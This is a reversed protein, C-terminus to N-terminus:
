FHHPPDDGAPIGCTPNVAVLRGRGPSTTFDQALVTFGNMGVVQVSEPVIDSYVIGPGGITIAAIGEAPMSTVYIMIEGRKGAITTRGVVLTAESPAGAWDTGCASLCLALAATLLARLVHQGANTGSSELRHTKGDVAIM